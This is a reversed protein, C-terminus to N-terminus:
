VKKLVESEYLKGGEDDDYTNKMVVGTSTDVIFEFRRSWTDYNSCSNSCSNADEKSKCDYFSYGAWASRSIVMLCVLFIFRNRM